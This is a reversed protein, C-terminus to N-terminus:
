APGSGSRKRKEYDRWYRKAMRIDRGQTGKYGGCLLIVVTAGDRGFYIRYGPGYDVRLEGVGAGVSKWDGILGREVRDVRALIAARARRDAQLESLWDEFPRKEADTQYYLVRLGVADAM